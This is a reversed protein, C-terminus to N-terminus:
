KKSGKKKAPVVRFSGNGAAPDEPAAPAKTPKKAVESWGGTSGASANAHPSASSKPPASDIIGKDALKKRRIFEEAFHRSDITQSVGHVAETIIDSEHPLFLLSAVIDEANAGKTLDPRLENAAWKKFEDQANVGGAGGIGTMTASRSPTKRVAGSQLVQSASRTPAGPSPVPAPTKTKGSAGVTTWAGGPLPQAPSPSSVKGALNAYSKGGAPAPVTAMVNAQAQAAQAAQRKKRAEEEKQIQAMTKVSGSTTKVPGSTTKAWASSSTGTPTAPSVGGSSGWKSTAPLGPQQQAAVAAQAEIEKQLAARRAEVAKAELEAAQLAEAEQIQKLSPGRSSSETAEKAWPAVTTSPTEVSPTQSRSRSEAHLHDAVSQRSTRQAAPAPLPSQSPAPPFPQPIGQEVQKWVSQQPAPSQKASAAKQVQETLSLPEQSQGFSEQGYSKIDPSSGRSDESGARGHQEVQEFQFRDSPGQQGQLRNFEELRENDSASTESEAADAAAQEKALLDRDQLMQQVQQDHQGRQQQIQQHQAFNPQGPAGFQRGGGLKLRDMISPIEEERIHGLNDVGSGVAGLGGGSLPAGQGGAGRNFGGEGFPFGPTHNGGATPGQIPSPQFASSPSTMSGFSPQSHLSQASSQHHLPNGGHFGQSPMLGGSQSGHGGGHIHQMRQAIQAQALHEKQRAMLYQEEQKRRELANQQEATLTTGFSPFSSAFPPAVGAPGTQTINPGTTPGAAWNAGGPVTGSPGHPIGIQPVLFPERSNGIRRILQALPEYDTDEYKKVLLEPSFFGAKYWDHMELGSWPGQTQGQPDRYIWRMRDPMVMTRQQPAPPQGGEPLQSMDLNDFQSGSQPATQDSSSRDDGQQSQGTVSAHSQFPSAERGEHQLQQGMGPFGGGFGGRPGTIGASPFGSGLGPVGGFGAPSGLGALGPSQMDGMSNAFIGGGFANSLGAPQRGPTGLGGQSVPWASSGSMGGALGGLSGLNPFGRNPGASSTQSRDSAAGQGRGLGPLGSGLGGFGGMQGQQAQQYQPDPNMAGLGPLRGSGSMDDGEEGESEEVLRNVGQTHADPSQYPNTGTPSMPENGHAASRQVGPTQEFAERNFGGFGGAGIQQAHTEPHMGFAGFGFDDRTGTRSPTDFGMLGQQRGAQGHPPSVDSGATLAASGSPMEEEEDAEDLIDDQREERQSPRWSDIENVKGLSGASAKHELGTARSSGGVDESSEKSLLNKFRSEARGSGLGPRKESASPTTQQNGLGFNGFSGMPSFGASSPANAWPSSPANFAAGGGVGGTQSRRLSGFPSSAPKEEPKDRDEPKNIDTRRRLLSPPPSPARGSERDFTAATPSSVTNTGPFPYSDSTDRRRPGRTSTPSMPGGYGGPTASISVKRSSLGNSQTDKRETPPKLPTNVSTTFLEREEEDMAKLALPAVGGQKVWCVEAVNTGGDQRGSGWAGTNSGNVGDSAIMIDKLGESLGGDEMQQAKFLDLLQSRTYRTADISTPGNRHPPVYRAPTPPEQGASSAATSSSMASVPTQQSPRRFTQTAGNPRRSWESNGDRPFHQNGGAAASAFSSPAM